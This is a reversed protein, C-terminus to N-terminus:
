AAWCARLRRGLPGLAPGLDSRDPVRGPQAPVPAHRSRLHRRQDVAGPSREVSGGVSTVDGDVVARPGLYVSGGVSVVDGGVRGEIRAPGGIATVGDSVEGDVEVSGGVAVAEDATEDQRVHVSGGVNVRDGSVHHRSSRRSTEPAEPAEPVEPAEPAEPAETETVDTDSTATAESTEPAPTGADAAAAEGTLGFLQRQDAASLGQLRIVADADAGLWDRLINANVREGNVAIQEGTVEVTRIGAKPQRPKLVVGGSVPLM